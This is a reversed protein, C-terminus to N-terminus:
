LRDGGSFTEYFSLSRHEVVPESFQLIRASKHLRQTNQKMVIGLLGSFHDKSRSTRRSGPLVPHTAVENTGVTIHLTGDEVRVLADRGAYIYPVSYQNGLYSLYADRTIKRPEM